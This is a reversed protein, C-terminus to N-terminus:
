DYSQETGDIRALLETIRPDKLLGNVCKLANYMESAFAISKETRSLEDIYDCLRKIQGAKELFYQIYAKRAGEHAGYIIEERISMLEEKVAEIDLTQM